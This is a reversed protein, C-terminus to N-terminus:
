PLGLAARPSPGAAGQSTLWGVELVASAAGHRSLIAVCKFADATFFAEYRRTRSLNLSYAAYDLATFGEHNKQNVPCGRSLLYELVSPQLRKTAIHVVTDGDRARAHVNISPNYEMFAMVRSLLLGGDLPDQDLLAMLRTRGTRDYENATNGLEYTEYNIGELPMRYKEPGLPQGGLHDEIAHVCTYWQSADSRTNLYDLLLLGASERLNWFWAREAEHALFGVLWRPDFFQSICLLMLFHRGDDNTQHFNFGCQRLRYILCEFGSSHDPVCWGLGKTCTCTVEKLGRPDLTFMFTEGEANLANVPAVDLLDFLLQAPAGSRAAFFLANNALNHDNFPDEINFNFRLPRGPPMSPIEAILEKILKHICLQSERWCCFNILLTNVEVVERNHREIIRSIEYPVPDVLWSPKDPQALVLGPEFQSRGMTTIDVVRDEPPPFMEHPGTTSITAGSLRKSTAATSISFRKRLLSALDSKVSSSLSLRKMADQIKTSLRSSISERMSPLTNNQDKTGPEPVRPAIESKFSDVAQHLNDTARLSPSSSDGDNRDIKDAHDPRNLIWRENTSDALHAPSATFAPGLTGPPSNNPATSLLRAYSKSSATSTRRFVQSRLFKIRQRSEQGVPLFKDYPVKERISILDTAQEDSLLELLLRQANREKAKLQGGDIASFLEVIAKVKLGCLRLIVLRKQWSTTWRTPAGRRRETGSTQRKAVRYRSMMNLPQSVGTWSVGLRPNRLNRSKAVMDPPMINLSHPVAAPLTDLNFKKFVGLLNFTQYPSRLYVYSSRSLPRVLAM